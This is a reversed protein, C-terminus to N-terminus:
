YAEHTNTGYKFLKSHILNIYLLIFDAFIFKWTHPTRLCGQVAQRCAHVAQLARPTVFGRGARVVQLNINMAMSGTPLFYLDENFVHSSSPKAKRRSWGWNNMALPPPPIAHGELGGGGKVSRGVVSLDSLCRLSM